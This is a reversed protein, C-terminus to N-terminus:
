KDNEFYKLLDKLYHVERPNSKRIGRRLHLLEVKVLKYIESDKMMLLDKPTYPGINRNFLNKQSRIEKTLRNKEVIRLHPENKKKLKKMRRERIHSKTIARSYPDSLYPIREYNEKPILNFALSSALATTMDNQHEFSIMSGLKEQKDWIFSVKIGKMYPLLVVPFQTTYVRLRVLGLSNNKVQLICMDGNQDKSRCLVKQIAGKKLSNLEKM